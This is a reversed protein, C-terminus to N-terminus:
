SMMIFQVYCLLCSVVLLMTCMALIFMKYFCFLFKCFRSFFCKVFNIISFCKPPVLTHRDPAEFSM